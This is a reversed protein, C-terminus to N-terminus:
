QYNIICNICNPSLTQIVQYITVNYLKDHMLKLKLFTPDIVEICRMLPLDYLELNNKAM